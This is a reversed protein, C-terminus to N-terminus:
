HIIGIGNGLAGLADSYAASNPRFQLIGAAIYSMFTLVQSAAFVILLYKCNRSMNRSAQSQKSLQSNSVRSFIRYMYVAGFFALSSSYIITLPAITSWKSAWNNSSQDIYITYRFVTAGSCSVVVFASFIQMIKTRKATFLKSRTSIAKLLEIYYVNSFLFYCFSSISYLSAIEVPCNLEGMFVIVTRGMAMAMSFFHGLTQVVRALTFKVNLDRYQYALVCLNLIAAFILVAAAIMELIGVSMFVSSFCSKTIVYALKGNKSYGQLLSM